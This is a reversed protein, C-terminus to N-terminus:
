HAEEGYLMTKITKVAHQLGCQMDFNSVNDHSKIQAKDYVYPIDGFIGKWSTAMESLESATYYLDKAPYRKAFAEKLEGAFSEDWIPASPLITCLYEYIAHAADMMLAVNDREPNGELMYTVYTLDPLHGAQGHGIAPLSSYEIANVLRDVDATINEQGLLSAHLLDRSPGGDTCWAHQIKVKNIDSEYGVFGQHAYTDAFIHLYAGIQRLVYNRPNALQDLAAHAMLLQGSIISGDKYTAPTTPMVKYDDHNHCITKPIFHFPSIFYKQHDQYKSKAVVIATEEYDDVYQSYEAIIQAEFELFGAHLALTKVAFYHFNIDM